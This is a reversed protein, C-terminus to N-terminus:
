IVQFPTIERNISEVPKQQHSKHEGFKYWTQCVTTSRTLIQHINHYYSKLTKRTHLKIV